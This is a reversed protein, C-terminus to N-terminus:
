NKKCWTIFRDMLADLDVWGMVVIFLLVWGITWLPEVIEMIGGIDLHTIQKEGFSEIYRDGKRLM